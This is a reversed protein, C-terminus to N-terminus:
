GWLASGGKQFIEEALQREMEDFDSRDIGQGEMEMTHGIRSLREHAKQRAQRGAKEVLPERPAFAVVLDCGLADAADRLRRLTIAGDVENKELKLVASPSAVGIGRAFSELGMGLAERIARIWGGSPTAVEPLASFQGLAQDLQKM